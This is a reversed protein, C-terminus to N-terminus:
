RGRGAEGAEGRGRQAVLRVDFHVPTWHRAPYSRGSGAGQFPLSGAAKHLLYIPSSGGLLEVAASGFRRGVRLTLAETYFRTATELDDVDINLLLEVHSM